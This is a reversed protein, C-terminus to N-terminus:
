GRVFLLSSGTEEGPGESTLEYLTQGKTDPKKILMINKLNMWTVTHILVKNWKTVSYNEKTYVWQTLGNMQQHVNLNRGITILAATLM